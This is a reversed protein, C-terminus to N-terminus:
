TLTNRCASLIGKIPMPLSPNLNKYRIKFELLKLGELNFEEDGWFETDTELRKLMTFGNLLNIQSGKQM